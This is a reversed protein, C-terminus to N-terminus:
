RHSPPLPPLPHPLNLPPLLLLASTPAADVTRVKSLASVVIWVRNSPLVTEVRALITEWTRLSSVSTGGYKVVVWPKPAAM